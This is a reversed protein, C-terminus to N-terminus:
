LFKVYFEGDTVVIKQPTGSENKYIDASFTGKVYTSTVETLKCEFKEPVADHVYTSGWVTSPDTNGADSAYGYNNYTSGGLAEIGYVKGATFDDNESWLSVTNNETANSGTIALSFGIGYNNKTAFSVTSFSKETGDYKAKFYYDGSPENSDEKKCSVFLTTIALM